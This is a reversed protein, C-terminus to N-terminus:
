CYFIGNLLHDPLQNCLETFCIAMLFATVWRVIAPGHDMNIVPVRGQWRQVRLWRWLRPFDSNLFQGMEEVTSPLHKSSDPAFTRIFQPTVFVSFSQVLVKVMCPEDINMSPEDSNMTEWCGLGECGKDHMNWLWFEPLTNVGASRAISTWGESESRSWRNIMTAM